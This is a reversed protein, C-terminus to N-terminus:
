RVKFPPVVHVLTFPLLVNSMSNLGPSVVVKYAEPVANKKDVFPPVENVVMLAPMEVPAFRMHM